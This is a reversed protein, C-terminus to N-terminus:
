SGRVRTHFIVLDTSEEATRIPTESETEPNERCTIRTECHILGECLVARASAVARRESLESEHFSDEPQKAIKLINEIHSTIVPLNRM